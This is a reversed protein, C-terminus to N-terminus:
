FGNTASNYFLKGTWTSTKAQTSSAWSVTMTGPGTLNGFMVRFPYYINATMAVTGSVEVPGHLGGNKVVANTHTYGTIADPGIWMYSADDTNTYFTYTDTTPALFYGTLMISTYEPLSSLNLSTYVGQSTAAYTDFFTLDDNAPTFDTGFYGNANTTGTVTRHYVGSTFTISAVNIWPRGQLLGGPNPNNVLTNGSYKTPLNDIDYTNNERYYNATTNGTAQRRLQALQLKYEQRQQKTWTGTGTLNNSTRVYSGTILGSVSLTTADTLKTGNLFLDMIATPTGEQGNIATKLQAVTQANDITISLNTAANLFSQVSLTINAM